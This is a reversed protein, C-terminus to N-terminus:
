FMVSILLGLLMGLINGYSTLRGSYLSKSEPILDGVSIYLMTGGAYALSVAIATKSIHGVLAGILAGIGMPVGSLVAYMVAKVSSMGGKKLPLALALGEPVDHILIVIMLSLGLGTSVEFGSGIALGEPFNHVAIGVAMIVGTKFLENKTSLPSSKSYKLRDQVFMSFIIGLLVGLFVLYFPGLEFANPLLDFCVVSIMLGASFELIFSLFRIGLRNFFLALLGGLSTGFVGSFLAAATVKFLHEVLQGGM